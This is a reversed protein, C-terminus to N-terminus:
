NQPENVRANAREPFRRRSENRRTRRAARARYEWALPPRQRYGRRQSPSLLANRGQLKRARPVKTANRAFACFRFHPTYVIKTKM